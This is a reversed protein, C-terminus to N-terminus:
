SATGKEILAAGRDAWTAIPDPRKLHKRTNGNVSEISSAHRLLEARVSVGLQGRGSAQARGAGPLCEGDSV